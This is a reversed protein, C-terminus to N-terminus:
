ETVDGLIRHVIELYKDAHFRTKTIVALEQITETGKIVELAIDYDTSRYGCDSPFSEVETKCDGRKISFVLRNRFKHTPYLRDACAKCYCKLTAPCGHLTYDTALDTFQQVITKKPRFSVITREEEYKGCSECQYCITVNFDMLSYKIHDDEPTPYDVASAALKRLIDNLPKVKNGQSLEYHNRMALLMGIAYASECADQVATDANTEPRIKAITKRCFLVYQYITNWLQSAEQSNDTYNLMSEAKRELDSLDAHDSLYHFPSVGSFGEEDKYYMLTMVIAGYYSALMSESWIKDLGLASYQKKCFSIIGRVFDTQQNIEGELTIGGDDNLLENEMCISYARDTMMSIASDLTATFSESELSLKDRFRKTVEDPHIKLLYDVTKIAEDNKKLSHLIQAKLLLSERDDSQIALAKEAMLLANNHQTLCTYMKALGRWANVSAPDIFAARKYCRIAEDYHKNDAEIDGQKIATMAKNEITSDM